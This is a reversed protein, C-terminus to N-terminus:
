KIGLKFVEFTFKLGMPKPWILNVFDKAISRYSDLGNIFKLSRKNHIAVSQFNIMLWKWFLFKDFYELLIRCYPQHLLISRGWWGLRKNNWNFIFFYFHILRFVLWLNATKYLFYPTFISSVQCEINEIFFIEEGEREMKVGGWKGNWELEMENVNERWKVASWKWEMGSM